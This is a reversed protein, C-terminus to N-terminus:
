RVRWDDPPVHKEHCAAMRRIWVAISPPISAAGSAWRWVLRSDCELVAALQRQSWGISRLATQLEDATM